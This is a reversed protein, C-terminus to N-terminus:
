VRADWALAVAPVVAWVLARVRTPVAAREPERARERCSAWAPEPGWAWGLGLESVLAWAQAQEWARGPVWVSVQARGSVRERARAPGLAQAGAQGWERVRALGEVLGRGPGPAPVQARETVPEM